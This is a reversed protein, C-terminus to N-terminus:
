ILGTTIPPQEATGTGRAYLTRARERRAYFEGNQLLQVEAGAPEGHDRLECAVNRGNRELTWLSEGPHERLPPPRYGPSYWQDTM